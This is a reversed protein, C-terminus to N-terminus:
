RRGDQQKLWRELLPNESTSEPMDITDGRFVEFRFVEGRHATAGFLRMVEDSSVDDVQITVRYNKPTVQSGIVWGDFAVNAVGGM